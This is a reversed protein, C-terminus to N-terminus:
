DCLSKIAKPEDFVVWACGTSAAGTALLAIATLLYAFNKRM